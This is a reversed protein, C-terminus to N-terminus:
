LVASMTNSPGGAGAKNVAIVRYELEVGTPQGRLAIEEALSMAVDTWPEGAARDRRQVTYAMVPGGDVPPKWALFVSDGTERVVTLSLVQGPRGRSAHRPRRGGWGLNKLKVHDGRAHNEAYRLDSKLLDVLNFRARHKAATALVRQAKAAVQAAEAGQFEILAGELQDPPAPPNPFEDPHERLGEIVLRALVVIEAESLPFRAM